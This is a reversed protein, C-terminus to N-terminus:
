PNGSPSGRVVARGTTSEDESTNHWVVLPAVALRVRHFPLHLQAVCTPGSNLARGSSKTESSRAPSSSTPESASAGPPASGASPSSSAPSPFSAPVPLFSSAQRLPPMSQSDDICTELRWTRTAGGTERLRRCMKSFLNSVVFPVRSSSHTKLLSEIYVQPIRRSGRANM